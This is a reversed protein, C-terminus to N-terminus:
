RGTWDGNFDLINLSAHKVFRGGSRLPKCDGLRHGPGDGRLDLHGLLRSCGKGLARRAAMGPRKLERTRRPRSGGPHVSVRLVVLLGRRAVGQLTPHGPRRFSRYPSGSLPSHIPASLFKERLLHFSWCSSRPKWCV